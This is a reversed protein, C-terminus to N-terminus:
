GRSLRARACRGSFIGRARSLDALADIEIWRHGDADAARLSADGRSLADALAVEWYCGTDGCAVRREIAPGLGREWTARSFSYLNVTKHLGLHGRRRVEDGPLLAEVEGGVGVRAATGDMWPEYPAVLAYDPQALPALFDPDYLVDSELLLFPPRIAERACWLSHINNTVAFDPNHVFSVRPVSDCAGLHRRLVEARHGTVVLIERVGVDLAGRVARDVIPGSGADLMAKPLAEGLPGLRRGAGAALIVAQVPASV